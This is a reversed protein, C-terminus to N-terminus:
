NKLDELKSVQNLDTRLQLMQNRITASLKVPLETDELIESYEEIAAKDGRICEELMAEDNDASLLNKVDMWTRHLTGKLSGDKELEGFAAHIDSKLEQNFEKRDNSKKLFFSRLSKSEANESAKEYGKQADINRELVNELRKSLSNKDTTEM